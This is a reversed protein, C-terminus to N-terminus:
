KMMNNPPPMGPPPTPYEQNNSSKKSKITYTLTLMSYRRLVTSQNDQTYTQTVTRSIDNNQNLIDFVSLKAELQKQKLFKYGVYANWLQYGQNYSDSLGSYVTYNYTTNLVIRNGLIFNAGATATHTLYNNDSQKQLSNKVIHYTGSYSLNFDVKESINSGAFTRLNFATNSSINNQYNILSPTRSYNVGGSLNINSKLLSVPVGYVVFSNVSYYGNLNAPLVIQSGRNVQVNNIITDATPIITQTGIYNTTYKGRVMSFFTRSTAMDINRYHLMLNQDFSQNLNPNGTSLLLPNSYDVVNQLDTIDPANTNTNYMIRVNASKSKSYTFMATPLVNVFDRIILGTAPYTQEGQLNASQMYAGISYTAKGRNLKYNLGGKQTSYTSNYKNSLTRNLKSYDGTVSDMDSTLKDALSKQISPNYSVLLQGKKGIPETYTLNASYTNTKNDNTYDQDLLTSGTQTKYETLSYYNGTGSQTNNQQILDLSITRGRKDFKHRLLISNNINFGTNDSFQNNVTKSTVQNVGTNYVGNLKTSYQNQQIAISPTYILSNKDDITYEFRLSARHNTNQTETLSQENYLLADSTFYKRVISANNINNTQNFFYSGTLKIKKGLQDTYNIGGAHTTTNGNNSAGSVLSRMDLGSTPSVSGLEAGRRPGGSNMLGMVDSIDFKQQNINNSMGLISIRQDGNFFNLSLGSNYRGETGYGGYVRGFQGRSMGEKTIFNLAADTTGDSFGTFSAQDSMNDFVQVKSIMDAPLSKIAASPDNGFFEKGDVLVKKVSEGNVQVGNAGVVVGPMKKLLDEATADPNVKFADSNFEVTDGKIVARNRIDKVDHTELTNNKLQMKLIGMSVDKDEIIVTQTSNEYGVYTCIVTYIGRDLKITNFFGKLDTTRLHTKNGEEAAIIKITAGVIPSKDTADIVYGSISHSQSFAFEYMFLFFLLLGTKM